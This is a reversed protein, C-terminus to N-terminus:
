ARETLHYKYYVTAQSTSCSAKIAMSSNFGLREFTLGGQTYNGAGILILVDNVTLGLSGTDVVDTGDLTVVMRLNATVASLGVFSLYGSSGTVSVLTALSTGATAVRPLTSGSLLGSASAIKNTTSGWIASTVSEVKEVEGQIALLRSPIGMQSIM